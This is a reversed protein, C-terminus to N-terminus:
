YYYPLIRTYSFRHPTSPSILLHCYPLVMYVSFQYFFFKTIFEDIILTLISDVKFPIENQGLRKLRDEAVTRGVGKANNAVYSLTWGVTADFQALRGTDKSTAGQKTMGQDSLFYIRYQFIIFRLYQGDSLVTTEIPVTETAVDGGGSAPDGGGGADVLIKKVRRIFRVAVGPNTTLVQPANYKKVWIFEAEALQAPERFWNRM